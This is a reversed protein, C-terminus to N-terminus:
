PDPKVGRVQMQAKIRRERGLSSPLTLIQLNLEQAMKSGRVEIREGKLLPLPSEFASLSISCNM